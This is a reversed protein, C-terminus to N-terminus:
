RASIEAAYSICQAMLQRPERKYEKATCLLRVYLHSNSAKLLHLEEFTPIAAPVTELNFDQFVKVSSEQDLRGELADFGVECLALREALSLPGQQTNLRTTM